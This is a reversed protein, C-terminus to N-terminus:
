DPPAVPSVRQGEVPLGQPRPSWRGRGADTGDYPGGDGPPETAAARAGATALEARLRLVAAADLARAARMARVEAAMRTMDTRWTRMLQAVQALQKDRL